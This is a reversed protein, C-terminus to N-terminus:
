STTTRADRTAAGRHQRGYYGPGDYDALWGLWHEKQTDYWARPSPEPPDAPPSRIADISTAISVSRVAPKRLTRWVFLSSLDSVRRSRASVAASWDIQRSAVSDSGRTIM